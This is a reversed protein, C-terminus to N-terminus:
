DKKAPLDQEDTRRFRGTTLDDLLKQEMERHAREYTSFSKEKLKELIEKRKRAEVWRQIQAQERNKLDLLAQRVSQLDTELKEIFRNLIRLREMDVVGSACEKVSERSLAIQDQLRDREETKLCLAQRISALATQENEELLKRHNLVSELTFTFRKM